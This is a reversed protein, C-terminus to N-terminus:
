LIILLNQRHVSKSGQNHNTGLWINTWPQIHIHDWCPKPLTLPTQSTFKKYWQLSYSSASLAEWSVTPSVNDALQWRTWTIWEQLPVQWNLKYLYSKFNPLKLDLKSRSVWYNNYPHLMSSCAAKSCVIM